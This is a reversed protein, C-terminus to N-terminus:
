AFLRAMEMTPTINPRQSLAEELRKKGIYCWPCIIDSYIDITLNAM